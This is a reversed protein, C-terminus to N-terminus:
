FSEQVEVIADMDSKMVYNIFTITRAKLSETAVGHPRFVVVNNTITALKFNKLKLTKSVKNTPLVFLTLDVSYFKDQRVRSLERIQKKTARAEVYIDGTININQLDLVM